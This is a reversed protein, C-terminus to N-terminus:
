GAFGGHDMLWGLTVPGVEGTGSFGLKRQLDRVAAFTLSSYNADVPIQYGNARLRGQVVKVAVSRAGPSVPIVAADRGTRVLSPRAARPVLNTSYVDELHVVAGTHPAAIMRGAGVYIATHYITNPDAPNTAWYLLDGPQAQSLLVHPVAKFQDAATRPLAIGAYQYARMTLGSCDFGSPGTGGYVYPTGFYAMGYWVARAAYEPAAAQASGQGVATLGLAALLATLALLARRPLGAFRGPRRVSRPLSRRVPRDSPAPPAASPTAPDPHHARAPAGPCAAPM